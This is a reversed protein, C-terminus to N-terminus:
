TLSAYKWFRQKNSQIRQKTEKDKSKESVSKEPFMM